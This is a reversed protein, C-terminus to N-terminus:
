VTELIAEWHTPGVYSEGADTKSYTGQPAHSLDSPADEADDSTISTEPSALQTPSRGIPLQMQSQGGKSQMMELLLNELHSLREQPSSKSSSKPNQKAYTCSTGHGKCTGCPHERDCKSKRNRCQQCSVVARNRKRVKGVNEPKTVNSIARFKHQYASIDSMTIVFQKECRRANSCNSSSIHKLTLFTFYAPYIIYM